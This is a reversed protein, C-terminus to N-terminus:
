IHSISQQFEFHRLVLPRLAISKSTFKAHILNTSIWLKRTTVQYRLFFEYRFPSGFSSRKLKKHSFNHITMWGMFLELIYKLVIIGRLVINVIHVIFHSKVRIDELMRKWVKDILLIINVNTVCLSIYYLHDWSRRAVKVIFYYKIWKKRLRRKVFNAFFMHTKQLLVIDITWYCNLSRRLRCYSLFFQTTIFM